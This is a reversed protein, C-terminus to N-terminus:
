HILFLLIAFRVTGSQGQVSPAPGTNGFLGRRPPQNPNSPVSSTTIKTIDFDDDTLEPYILIIKEHLTM